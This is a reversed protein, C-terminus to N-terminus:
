NLIHVERPEPKTAAGDVAVTHTDDVDRAPDRVIEDDVTVRGAAILKEAARRSAVGAHALCKALRMPPSTLPPAAPPARAPPPGPPPLPRPSQPPLNPTPRRPPRPRDALRM